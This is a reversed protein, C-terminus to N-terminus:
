GALRRIEVPPLLGAQRAKASARSLLSAVTGPRIGLAAAVEAQTLGQARLCVCEFERPSLVSALSRELEMWAREEAHADARLSATRTERSRRVEDVALNRVVSYMWAQPNPIPVGSLNAQLYRLFTEQVCDRGEDQNRTIAAAFRFLQRAHEGYLLSLQMPAGEVPDDVPPAGARQGSPRTEGNQLEAPAAKM